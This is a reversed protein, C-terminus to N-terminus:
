VRVGKKGKYMRGGLEDIVSFPLVPVTLKDVCSKDIFYIYRFSYGHVAEGGFKEIYKNITLNKGNTHSLIYKSLFSSKCQIKVKHAIEGGNM